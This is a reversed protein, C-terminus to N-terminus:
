VYSFSRCEANLVPFVGSSAFSLCRWRAPLLRSIAADCTLLRAATMVTAPMRPAHPPPLTSSPLAEEALEVAVLLLLVAADDFLAVAVLLAAALLLELATLLTDELLTDAALGAAVVLEEEEVALLAALLLRALALLEALEAFEVLAVTARVRELVLQGVRESDYGSAVLKVPSLM